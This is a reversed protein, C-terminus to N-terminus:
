SGLKGLLAMQGRHYWDHGIMRNLAMGISPFRDRIPEPLAVPIPKDLDEDTLGAQIAEICKTMANDYHRLVEAFPPYKSADTSPPEGGGFDPAFVKALEKPFVHEGRLCWRMVVSNMSNALHGLLWLATPRGDAPQYLRAGEPVARATALTESRAFALQECLLLVKANAM